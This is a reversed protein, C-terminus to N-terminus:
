PRRENVAHGVPTIEVSHELHEDADQKRGRDEADEGQEGHPEAIMM